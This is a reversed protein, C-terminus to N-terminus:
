PGTSEIVLNTATATDSVSATGWQLTVDVLQTATTDITSTSTNVMQYTTVTGGSRETYWGQSFVTGTAGTTRCTIWGEIDLLANTSNGSNVIGTDLVTVSGIKVKIEITPVLAASHTGFVRVKLTTGAKLFNVPLTLSGTGTGTLTTETVTNAVTVSATQRFLAGAASSWVVTCSGSQSSSFTVTTDNADTLAINQPVIVNPPSANDQCQVVKTTTGAGDTLVVSTASSFTQNYSVTGGPGTFTCDTAGTGSNDVCGGNVFNLKQRKTVSSGGNQVTNYASQIGGSGMLWLAGVIVLVATLRFPLGKLNWM